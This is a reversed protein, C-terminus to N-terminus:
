DTKMNFYYKRVWYEFLPDLIVPTEDAGFTIIEKKCLADKLRRVNASSNLGYQSIVESASFKTHGDLIAKLLNVQYTTLGSMYAAFRSEHIALIMSLAEILVNEMIYGKSLSDCIAVFHNMYWLNNRFLRCAGTLLDRDIVKGSALFGKVMHEVIEKEDVDPLELRVAQRYFYRKHGFIEHMANEMSGCLVFSCTRCGAERMEKMVKEFIGCIKEGDETLMVNQFEDIIMYIMAGSREALRYPLKLVQRIDNDDIDWNLSLIEDNEAYASRDFVFHTDKLCDAVIEAYEDPTSAVSRVAADGLLKLFGRVTRTSLLNVEGISFRKGQVRMNFLTQQIVSTKGTKPPGYVTVHEGASLLNALIVTENKRGIFNKGTVYKNYIFSSDM